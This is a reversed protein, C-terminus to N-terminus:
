FFDTFLKKTEIKSIAIYFTAHYVRKITYSVVIMTM